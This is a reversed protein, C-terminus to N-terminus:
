NRWIDCSIEGQIKALDLSRVSITTAEGPVPQVMRTRKWKISDWAYRDKEIQTMDVRKFSFFSSSNILSDESIRGQETLSDPLSAKPELTSVPTSESITNGLMARNAIARSEQADVKLLENEDELLKLRASLSSAIDELSEM